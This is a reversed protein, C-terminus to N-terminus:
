PNFSNPRCNITHAHDGSLWCNPCTYSRLVPCLVRGWGDERERGGEREKRERGGGGGGEREREREGRQRERM